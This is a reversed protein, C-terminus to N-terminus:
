WGEEYDPRRPAFRWAMHEDWWRELRRELAVIRRRTLERRLEEPSLSALWEDDKRKAERWDVLLVDMLASKHSALEVLPGRM